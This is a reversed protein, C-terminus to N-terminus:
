IAAQAGAATTQAASPVIPKADAAADVPSLAAASGLLMDRRSLSSQAPHRTNM